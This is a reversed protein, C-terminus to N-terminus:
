IIPTFSLSSMECEYSSDGTRLPTPNHIRSMCDERGKIFHEDSYTENQTSATLDNLWGLTGPYLDMLSFISVPISCNFFHSCNSISVKVYATNHGGSNIDIVYHDSDHRFCRFKMPWLNDTNPDFDGNCVACHDNRYSIDTRRSTLPSVSYTECNTRTEDDSWDVPCSNKM